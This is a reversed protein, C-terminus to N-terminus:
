KKLIFTKAMNAFMEKNADWSSKATNFSMVWVDDAEGQIVVVLVKFSVNQQVLDAEMANAPRGGITTENEQSFSVGSFASELESKIIGLYDKTTKGELTDHSIAVYSKFGIEQVVPDTINEDAYVAMASVGSLPTASQWGAPFDLSFDDTVLKGAERAGTQSGNPSEQITGGDSNKNQEFFYFGVGAAALVLIILSIILTKNKM